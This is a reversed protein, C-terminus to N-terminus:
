LEASKAEPLIFERPKSRLLRWLARLLALPRGVSSQRARLALQLALSFSVALNVIGISMVGLVSWLLVHWPLVMDYAELAYGVFASSFAIHRIDLPLGFLTGLASTGGLLFGFAFNGALAGLHNYIYDALRDLRATGLRRRLWVLQRLRDPIRNYAAVNDYYGAILGAVFLCVGAVAAYLLALSATPHIDHLLHQAKEINILPTGTIQRYAWSLAIATPVALGINGLVAAIQSRTTQAILQAINPLDRSRDGSESLASAISAATMSPQKTAVTLHLMHIIVFGISYNLCVLLTETLPPLHQATLGLKFMAMLAIIPGAGLASRWMSWYEASTETIYHDGARAANDTVRLALLSGTSRIYHRLSNKHAEGRVLEKFLAVSPRSTAPLSVLRAMAIDLLGELRQQHLRLRQLLFTLHVSAGNRAARRRIREIISTCQDLLVHVHKADPMPQSRNSWHLGYQRAWVLLERDVAIFPSELTELTPDVRALESDVGSSAIRLSLVSMSNLLMALSRPLGFTVPAEAPLDVCLARMLEAWLEDDVASVWQADGPQNFVLNFTDRLSGTSVLDPLVKHTFRRAFESIFSRDPLMGTDVYLSVHHTSAFIECLSIQAQARLASDANLRHTLALIASHAQEINTPSSPRCVAVLAQLHELAGLPQGGM